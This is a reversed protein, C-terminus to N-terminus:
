CVLVEDGVLIIFEGEDEGVFDYIVIVYFSKFEFVVFVKGVEFILEKDEYGRNSGNVVNYFLELLDM